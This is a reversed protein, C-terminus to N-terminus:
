LAGTIPCRSQGSGVLNLLHLLDVPCRVNSPILHEFGNDDSQSFTIFFCVRRILEFVVHTTICRCTNNLSSNIQIFYNFIFCVFKFYFLFVLFVANLLELLLFLTVIRSTLLINIFIHFIRPEFECRLM